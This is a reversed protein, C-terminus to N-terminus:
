LPLVLSAEKWQESQWWFDWLYVGRAAVECGLANKEFHSLCNSEGENRHIRVSFSRSSGEQTRLFKLQIIFAKSHQFDYLFLGNNGCLHKGHMGEADQEATMDYSGNLPIRISEQNFNM